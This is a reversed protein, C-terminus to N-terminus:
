KGGGGVARPDDIGRVVPRDIWITESNGDYRALFPKTLSECFARMKRKADQLSEAVFYTPQYTTIPFPLTGAINPDWPLLEPRHSVGGAPRHEACAYQLWPAISLIPLPLTPILLFLLL